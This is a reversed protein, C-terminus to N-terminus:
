CLGTYGPTVIRKNNNHGSAFFCGALHEPLKMEGNANLENFKM